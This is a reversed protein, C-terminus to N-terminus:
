LNVQAGTVTHEVQVARGGKESVARICGSLLMSSRKCPVIWMGVMGGRVQM